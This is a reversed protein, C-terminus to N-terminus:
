CCAWRGGIPTGAPWTTCSAPTRWPAPPTVACWTFTWFLSSWPCRTLQFRGAALAPAPSLPAAIDPAAHGTLCSNGRAQGRGGKDSRPLRVLRQPLPLFIPRCGHPRCLPLLPAPAPPSAAHVHMGATWAARDSCPLRVAWRWSVGCLLSTSELTRPATQDGFTRRTCRCSGPSCVAPLLPLVPSAMLRASVPRPWAARHVAAAREAGKQLVPRPPPSTQSGQM